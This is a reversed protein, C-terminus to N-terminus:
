DTTYYESWKKITEKGLNNTPKFVHEYVPTENENVCNIMELDSKVNEKLKSKNNLFTIPLSFPENNLEITSIHNLNNM